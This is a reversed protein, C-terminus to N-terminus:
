ILSATLLLGLLHHPDIIDAHFSVESVESAVFMLMVM